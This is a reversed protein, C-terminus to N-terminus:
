PASEFFSELFPGKTHISSHIHNYSQGWCFFSCSGHWTVLRITLWKKLWGHLLPIESMKIGRLISKQHTYIARRNGVVPQLQQWIWPQLWYINLRQQDGTWFRFMKPTIFLAAKFITANFHQWSCKESTSSSPQVKIYYTSMSPQVYKHGRLWDGSTTFESSSPPWSIGNPKSFM